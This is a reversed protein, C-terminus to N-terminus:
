KGAPHEKVLEAEFDRRWQANSSCVFLRGETQLIYATIVGERSRISAVYKQHEAIAQTVTKVQTWDISYEPPITPRPGAADCVLRAPPTPLFEAARITKCGALALAALILAHKM